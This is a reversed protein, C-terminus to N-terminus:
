TAKGKKRPAPAPAAPDATQIVGQALLWKVSEPPLDTVVEGIEARRSPPYDLGVMVRYGHPTM